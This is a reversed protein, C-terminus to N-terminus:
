TRAGPRHEPRTGKDGRPQLHHQLSESGLALPRPPPPIADGLMSAPGSLSYRLSLPTAPPPPLNPLRSNRRPADRPDGGPVPEQYGRLSTRQSHTHTAQSNGGGLTPQGTGESGRLLRSAFGQRHVQM